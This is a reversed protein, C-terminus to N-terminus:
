QFQAFIPKVALAARSRSVQQQNEDSDAELLKRINGIGQQLNSSTGQLSILSITLILTGFVKSSSKLMDTRLVFQIFSVVLTWSNQKVKM